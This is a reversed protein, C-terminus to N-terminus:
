WAVAYNSFHDVRGTVKKIWLNDFSLLYSYVNLGDSVYAIRKPMLSGLLSCNSYSMTLAASRAFALGEPEFHVANVGRGTVIEARIAVPASLAGTPVTLTHPGIRMTGGASGLTQTASAYPIESCGLLGTLNLLGGLLSADPSPASPEKCACVLLVVVLWRLPKM